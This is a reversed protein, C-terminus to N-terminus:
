ANVPVNQDGMIPAQQQQQNPATGPVNGLPSQQQPQAPMQEFKELLARLEPDQLDAGNFSFSVRPPDVKPPQPPPQMTQYHAKGHLLVNHYGAQNDTKAQRGTDSTLWKRCIEFEVKHNDFIPDIEISSTGDPNDTSPIPESNLLLKIEDYQKTVDDEGPVYFDNLGLLEHILAINEPANLIALTEPNGTALLKEIIDKKQAWTIPLNENAELEVKGIKGELEARRILVNVFNGNDDRQVDREDDKVEKIYMPIIKGFIIKWWITFIKWTNQLRQLAQARSMSYQSATGSGQIDGGFLSPLAGSVLQALSQINESFPMVEQSLTATRLEYFGEGLAKGSKPTAAFIGGPVVEINEYAKFNLVAPDAFTQGIGHEITQLILSLLDNTIEQISVLSQGLPDHYLFDSLPNSSLTWHDDLSENCADAFQDNVMTLHCGDPYLKKLQKADEEPLINFKACRLWANNVTVINLPYEGQYQPSLRGWQEYQAAQNGGKIQKLLSKNSKLHEYKEVAISYDIEESFILYPTDKQQKAHVAVKIYLGGYVEMCIRAKPQTTVGTLRTVIFKDHTIQPDMMQMCQTCLQKGQMIQDHLKADEDDPEFEDLEADKLQSATPQQVAAPQQTNQQPIQQQANASSNADPANPSAVSEDITAGCNSCTTTTKEQEVEEYEKEEYTGYAKDSKSYCYCATMGETCFIFLAHLWLLPADNHRYILEAIKDGAKATALDLTNDADDPYCKIPPVSVSLAAIISELYAKFVNVPKDYSSQNTDSNSSQDWIRWDHAVSSYWVNSFGEWLLKLRRWQRIQRERTAIDENICDDYVTKLLRQVKGSIEKAM